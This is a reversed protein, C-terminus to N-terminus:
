TEHQHQRPRAGTVRAEGEVLGELTEQAAVDLGEGGEAAHGAGDEVVIELADDELADAIVDAEVRPHEFEGPM